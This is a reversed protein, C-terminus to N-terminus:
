KRTGMYANNVASAGRRDLADVVDRLVVDLFYETLAPSETYDANNCLVNINM